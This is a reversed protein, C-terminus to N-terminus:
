FMDFRTLVMHKLLMWVGFYWSTSELINAGHCQFRWLPYTKLRFVCGKKPKIKEGSVFVMFWGCAAAM